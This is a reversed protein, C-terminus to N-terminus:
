YGANVDWGTIHSFFFVFCKFLHKFNLVHNLRPDTCCKPIGLLEPLLVLCFGLLPLGVVAVRPPDSLETGQVCRQRSDGLGAPASGCPLVVQGHM